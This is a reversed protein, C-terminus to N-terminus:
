VTSIQEGDSNIKYDEKIILESVTVFEYGEAILKPIADKIGEVVNDSNNHMLIISGASVKTTIRQSIESGSIGKWDLTDVDWQIVKQGIEDCATIMDNTYEGFPARFVNIEVGAISEIIETSSQIESITEATTMSAFHPHTSSHNGVECGSEVIAGVMDPYKEAWFSVMFFTADIDYEELVELIELTKDAGWACDFTLAIQKEETKVRYIPILRKSSTYGVLVTISFICVSFIAILKMATKSRM